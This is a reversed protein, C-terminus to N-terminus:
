PISALCTLMNNMCQVTAAITPPTCFSYFLYYFLIADFSISYKTEVKQRFHMFDELAEVFTFVISASILM